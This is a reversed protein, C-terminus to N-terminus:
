KEGHSLEYQITRKELEIEVATMFGHLYDPDKRMKKIMKWTINSWVQVPGEIFLLAPVKLGPRSYMFFTKVKMGRKRYEGILPKEETFRGSHLAKYQEWTIM